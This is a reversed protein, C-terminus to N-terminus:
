DKDEASKKEENIIKGAPDVQLEMRQSGSTINVEHYAVADNKTVEEASTIKADPYKEHIANTVAGPLDRVEVMRDIAILKGQPTSEAEYSGGRASFAVEIVDQGNERETSAKKVALDPFKTRLSDMVALPVQDPPLNKEGSHSVCGIVSACVLIGAVGRGIRNAM